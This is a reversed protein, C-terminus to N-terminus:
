IHVEHLKKWHSVITKLSFESIFYEGCKGMESHLPIIRKQAKRRHSGYNTHSLM